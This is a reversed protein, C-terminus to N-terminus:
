KADDWPILFWDLRQITFTPAPLLPEGTLRAIAWGCANGVQNDSIQGGFYSRLSDVSEKAQMRGLTIASMWRVRNDEPPMSKVDNLRAELQAALKADAKGDHLLGLAWIASARAEQGFREAKRPILKRLTASAAVHKQQGLLQNVQSLQHEAVWAPPAPVGAKPIPRALQEEVFRVADPLTEAVALVRLSWAATIGVEPRPNRLLPVLRAAAPKHDTMALLIAAQELARWRGSDLWRMGQGLVVDRWVKKAALEALALRAARRVDRHLDDLRDGLFGIHKASPQRLLTQVAQLRLNPDPSALLREVIPVVLAPDIELLRAAAIAAVSLEKDEALRRLLGVAAKSEHHRLLSVASLRAYMGRPSVDAALGEADSELGNSRIQALARAAELRLTPPLEETVVLERLRDAAKPEKLAALGRMALVLSRDSPSATQLRKLWVEAAPRHNWAALVPEVLHRLDGGDTQTHRLLSAAATKVELAVLAQATALRVAPHQGEKDLAALLPDIGRELGKVGRRRAVAFAEAAKRRLDVESADLAKIWLSQTQETTVEIVTPIPIDPSKYMPSDILDDFPGEARAASWALFLMGVVFLSRAHAPTKEFRFRPSAM